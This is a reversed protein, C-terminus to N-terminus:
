DLDVQIRSGREKHDMKINGEWTYCHLGFVRKEEFKGLLLNTHKEVVKDM